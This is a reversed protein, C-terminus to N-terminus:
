MILVNVKQISVAEGTLSSEETSFSTTKLAILRADAPAKDGIERDPSRPPATSSTNACKSRHCGWLM